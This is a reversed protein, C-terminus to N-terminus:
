GGSTAQTVAALVEIEFTDSYLVVTGNTIRFDCIAIGVPWSTTDATGILVNAAAGETITLTGLLTKLPDRVQATITQGALSYAGGAADNFTLTLSLTAGQKIRLRKPLFM